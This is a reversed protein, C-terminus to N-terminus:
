SKSHTIINEPTRIEGTVLNNLLFKKQKQIESLKQALLSLEKDTTTLISAIAQQEELEPIDFLADALYKFHRNYGTEPIRFYKLLYFGFKINLCNKNKFLKIGDNGFAVQKEIYKVIRSHDGFLITPKKSFDYVLEMSDTYGSIFNNASQDFIPFKGTELYDQSKLGKPKKLVDFLNSFEITKYIKLFGPLRVEGTLLKQMLGKKVQKKLAIKKALLEIAKDWTELVAVIRHQEPLPPLLFKISKLEEQQIGSVTSGSGLREIFTRKSQFWHYLYKNIIKKSPYLAKLDQNIAVDVQFFVAHGLAMRTPVILTGKPVIRSSSNQLGIQTIYDQTGHPNHTVVDKVSAWPINGGWFDEREKSPTGGGEMKDLIDGLKVQQWDTLIKQNTNRVM